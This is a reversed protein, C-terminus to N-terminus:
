FRATYRIQVNFEDLAVMEMEAVRGSLLNTDPVELTYIGELATGDIRPYRNSRILKGVPYKNTLERLHGRFDRMRITNFDIGKRSIIAQGPEYSDLRLKGDLNIENYDYIGQKIVSRNFDTGPGTRTELDNRYTEYDAPSRFTKGAAQKKAVYRPYAEEYDPNQFTYNTADSAVAPDLVATGDGEAGLAGEVQGLGAEGASASGLGALDAGGGLEGGPQGALGTPDACDVPDDGCYAYSRV